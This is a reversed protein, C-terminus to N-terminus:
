QQQDRPAPDEDRKSPERNLVFIVALSIIDGSAIIGALVEHGQLALVFSIVGFFLALIFGLIQGRGSQKLRSEIITKENNVRSDLSKEAMNLIRNTSGPLVREYTEFDEPAPLPGSYTRQELAILTGEIVQRKEPPLSMLVDNIDIPAKKQPAPPVNRPKGM